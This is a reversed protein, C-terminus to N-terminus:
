VYNENIGIPHNQLCNLQELLLTHIIITQVDLYLHAVEEGMRKMAAQIKWSQGATDGIWPMIVIAVLLTLGHEEIVTLIIEEM